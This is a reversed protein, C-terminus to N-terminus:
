FQSLRDTAAPSANRARPIFYQDVYYLPQKGKIPPCGAVMVIIEGYEDVKGNSKFNVQKLRTVEDPTLLDRSYYQTHQHSGEGEQKVITTRGIRKSIYEATDTTNPAFVIHIHCNASISEQQGYTKRLQTMDQCILCSKIGYGAVYALSEEIIPLRGLSPFEDLMMLM